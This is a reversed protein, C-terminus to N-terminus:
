HFKSTIFNLEIMTPNSLFHSEQYILSTTTKLPGEKEEKKQFGKKTYFFHVIRKSKTTGRGKIGRDVLKVQM